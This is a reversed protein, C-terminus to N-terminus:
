SKWTSPCAAIAAFRAKTRGRGGGGRRRRGEGRVGYEGGAVVRRRRVPARVAIPLPAVIARLAIIWAESALPNERRLSRGRAVSDVNTLPTTLLFSGAARTHEHVDRARTRASTCRSTKSARDHIHAPVRRTSMFQSWMARPHITHTHIHTRGPLDSTTPASARARVVTHAYRAHTQARTYQTHEKSTPRCTPEGTTPRRRDGWFSSEGLWTHVCTLPVSWQRDNIPDDARTRKSPPNGANPRADNLRRQRVDSISIPIDEAFYFTSGRFRSFVTRGRVSVSSQDCLRRRGDDTTQGSVRSVQLSLLVRFSSELGKVIGLPPNDSLFM